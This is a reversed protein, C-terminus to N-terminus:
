ERHGCLRQLPWTLKCFFVLQRTRKSSSLITVHECNITMQHCKDRLSALENQNLALSASLTANESQLKRASTTLQSVRERLQEAEVQILKQDNREGQTKEIVQSWIITALVSHLSSILPTVEQLQQSTQKLETEIINKKNLTDQLEKITSQHLVRESELDQITKLIRNELDRNFSLKLQNWGDKM